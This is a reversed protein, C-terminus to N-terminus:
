ASSEFRDDYACRAEGIVPKRGCGSRSSRILLPAAM